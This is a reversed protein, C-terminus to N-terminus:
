LFPKLCGIASGQLKPSSLNIYYLFFHQNTNRPGFHSLWLFDFFFRVWSIGFLSELYELLYDELLIINSRSSHWFISLTVHRIIGSLSLVAFFMLGPATQVVQFSSHKGSKVGCIYKKLPLSLFHQKKCTKTTTTPSSVQLFYVCGCTSQQYHIEVECLSERQITNMMWPAEVHGWWFFKPCFLRMGELTPHQGNDWFCWLYYRFALSFFVVFLNATLTLFVVGYRMWPVPINVWMFPKSGQFSVHGRFILPQFIYERSFYDRKQPCTLKWPHIKISKM